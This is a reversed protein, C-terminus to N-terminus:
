CSAMTRARRLTRAACCAPASGSEQCREHRRRKQRSIRCATATSPCEDLDVNAPIYAPAYPELARRLRDRPYHTLIIAEADEPLEGLKGILTRRCALAIEHAVSKELEHTQRTTMARILADYDYLVSKEGMMGRALTSKGSCPPGYIVSTKM